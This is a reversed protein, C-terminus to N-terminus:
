EGLVEKGKAAQIPSGKTRGMWSLDAVDGFHDRFLRYYVLEEKTNLMWDNPLTRERVFQDDTIQKEAYQALLDGVGAGQWFKKKRRWLVESPLLADLARRLIWKETAGEEQRLKLRSPIHLAHQVVDPDLFPVYAVLGHASATRDVRQLATNHLRRVIDVLEASLQHPEVTALYAYGAFLEDAGEGSFVSGVYDSARRAVLYNTVSSRVLLADFSELHYIVEPLVAVIEGLTCLVEHHESGLFDSVRRAFELDPAGPLGVSFTHLERVHPQALAAMTSSDLGGSLWCGMVDGDVRRCVAQELRLRLESAIHGTDQKMPARQNLESFAQVAGRGDYWCGPPFERIEKTVELLAKVESAFCLAGDGTRGYYLPRVGVPDRALFLGGPTAAALAFPKREKELVAPDPLPPRDGDWAAQRQLTPSTPVVQADPWVAGLTARQTEIVKSGAAGRHTIRELMKVVQDQRGDCDFGVIGAV